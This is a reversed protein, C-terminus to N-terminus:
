IGELTSFPPTYEEKASSKEQMFGDTLGLRVAEDVVKRYEYTTVRRNIEPYNAAHYFPTYQSMLSILFGKEPLHEKMWHLIQFSDKSAGPLIMHRLLVGQKLRGTEEDFVPPGTQKIMRLIAKSAVDFYDNARSYRWSLDPSFYKIDPLYIQVKDHLADIIEVREYGSCNYIVPLNLESKVMDLAKVIHPLFQTPTVLNLNYAGQAQISLFIDALRNVTIEKGLNEQSITYNQCYCCRLTCGSFFVTGSGGPIQGTNSNNNQLAANGSICPEEWYHLAARAATLRNSCGCAGTHTRRDIRCMRPCLTCQEYLSFSISM